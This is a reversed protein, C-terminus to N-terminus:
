KKIMGLSYYILPKSNVKKSFKLFAKNWVVDHSLLLGSKTIHPWATEYEFMMHEYTHLSDHFFVSIKNIKKLLTPLEEKANGLILTWRDKLYEPVFDGAPYKENIWHKQGDKLMKIGGRMEMKSVLM